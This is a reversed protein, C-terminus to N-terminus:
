NPPKEKPSTRKWNRQSMATSKYLSIEEGEECRPQTRPLVKSNFHITRAKNFQLNQKGGATLLRNTKVRPLVSQHHLSSPARFSSSAIIEDGTTM